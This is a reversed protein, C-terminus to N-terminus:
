NRNAGHFITAIHKPPKLRGKGPPFLYTWPGHTRTDDISSHQRSGDHLMLLSSSRTTTVHYWM